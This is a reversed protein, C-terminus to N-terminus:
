ANILGLARLMGNDLQISGRRTVLGMQPDDIDWVAWAFNRNEASTRVDQLWNERHRNLAGNGRANRRAAGFEGLLIQDRRIANKEAWQVVSDFEAAIKTADFHTALYKRAANLAEDEMRMRQQATISPDALVAQRISQETNEADATSVPYPLDNLYRFHLMNSQSTVVGQHTFHHPSYYHFSWYINSGAFARADVNLLGRIGGSAAGSMILTLGPHAHRAAAHMDHLRRQWRAASASDYGHPPENMFELAVRAPDLARLTFSIQGMLKIYSAATDAGTIIKDPTWNAVQSIPHFDVIVNLGADLILRCRTLLIQNLEDRHAAGSALFPGPDATLRIFDLGATKFADLLRPNIQYKAASYPPWLFREKSGPELEPWNMMSHISGGRKLKLLAINQARTQSPLAAAALLSAGGALIDRRSPPTLGPKTDCEYM